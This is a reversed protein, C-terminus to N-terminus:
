YENSLDVHGHFLIRHGVSMLSHGFIQEVIQFWGLIYKTVVIIFIVNWVQFSVHKFLLSEHVSYLIM